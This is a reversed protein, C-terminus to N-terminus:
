ISGKATVRGIEIVNLVMLRSQEKKSLTVMEKLPSM